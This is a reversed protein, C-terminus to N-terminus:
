RSRVKAHGARRGKRIILQENETLVDVIDGPQFYDQLIMDSIRNVVLRDLTRQLERAGFEASHGERALYEYAGQYVHLRLQHELLRTKLRRMSLHLIARLDEFLLPYFPVIEDIRNIFEPRFHQRLADLLAPSDAGIEPSELVEAGVNSTMAVICHKFSVEGRAGSRLRGEDFVPLLIDFVRPHAKEIEDFLVLSFPANRVASTLRGEQESGVYGPPAGLLRSVAHEEVYESMDFTLLHSSSGFISGALAKALETKGVGTPGVFLMVAGPRNPDSLGARSKKVVAAVKRIATDQGIVRQKLDHELNALHRREEATIEEIPVATLRSIVKRIEHPTVKGTIEPPPLGRSKARQRLAVVKLRFRACAQDLADIAKDPLQRDPMYRQSLRVAARMARRSIKVEHHRELAPRLSRLVAYTAEESLPEVRLMQFRRELAPDKAIFRRYEEYTTAGVCRLDGRALAPKLLNAMDVSDGDTAGAGMILHIEDIFLIVDRLATIERLVKQLREEFAGRYQTGSLLAGVDLELVRYGFLVDDLRGAAAQIALGEALKTKGVGPEGVLIANNKSRRSLVQLLDFVECERGIVADLRGERAEATLDRTLSSLLEPETAEACATRELSPRVAAPQVAGADQPQVERSEKKGLEARLDELMDGRPLQLADMVRSPLSHADALIALLLHGSTATTGGYSEALKGAIATAQAARPTFFTESNPAPLTGPWPHQLIDSLTREFSDRHIALFKEPLHSTKQGIAEFLHEVGVYHQRRKASLAAAEDLIGNVERSVSVQIM